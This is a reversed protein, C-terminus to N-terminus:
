APDGGRPDGPTSRRAGNPPLEKWGFVDNACTATIANDFWWDLERFSHPKRIIRRERDTLPIQRVELLRYIARIKGRALGRLYFRRQMRLLGLEYDADLWERFGRFDRAYSAVRRFYDDRSEGERGGLLWPWCGILVAGLEEIGLSRRRSTVM